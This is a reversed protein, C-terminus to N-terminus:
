LLKLEKMVKEYKPYDDGFKKQIYEQLINKWDAFGNLDNSSVKFSSVLADM